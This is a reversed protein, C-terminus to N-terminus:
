PTVEFFHFNESGLVKKKAFSLNPRCLVTSIALDMKEFIQVSLVEFITNEM